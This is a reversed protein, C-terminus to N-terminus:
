EMAMPLEQKQEAEQTGEMSKVLIVKVKPKQPKECKESICFDKLDSYWFNSTQGHPCVPM